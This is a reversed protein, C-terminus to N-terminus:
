MVVIGLAVMLARKCNDIDRTVNPIEACSGGEESIGVSTESRDHRVGVEERFVERLVMLRGVRRAEM